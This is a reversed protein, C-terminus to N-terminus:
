ESEFGDAFILEPFDGTIELVTGNSRLAYVRGAADEAFSYLSFGPVTDFLEFTWNGPTDESAFWIEGSGYDGFIYFGQLSPIPGRYRFGGTVSLRGSSHAYEMVPLVHSPPPCGPGGSFMSSGEFCNWGMNDGGTVPSELLNVEEWQGQGVDGIWLDGTQRDFSWRWPNRLGYLFVEGCRDAQGSFPNDNPIAYEASGDGADGCLNNAGAPTTDDVDIRLMKGLLAVSEDSGCTGSTDINAPDLTQARNCPDGGSGGDGMGIYLYADPGFVINGGNHNSFDQEINLLIRESTDDAIDPNGSVEFESVVTDGSTDTYNVYFLGNSAHDPHFALGLLGRESGSSIQGSLDIFPTALVTGNDIVEILGSQHVAFMRGTGDNPSVLSLLSSGAFDGPSYVEVLEADPPIQAMAPLSLILLFASLGTKILSRSIM